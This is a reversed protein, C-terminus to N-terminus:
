STSSAPEAGWDPHARLAEYAALMKGRVEDTLAAVKELPADEGAPPPPAHPFVPDLVRVEISSIWKKTNVLLSGKELVAHAGFIVIPMVPVGFNSSFLFPGKKFAGIEPKEQRTGEPALAFMFGDAFLRSAHRYVELVEARKHRAIPLNSAARMAPGFMPIRFLEIKAGWRIRNRRCHALVAPIDFLSQHNFALIAGGQSPLKEFGRARIRIGYVWLIGRAWMMMAGTTRDSQKLLGFFIVILSFVGTWIPVFGIGFIARPYTLLQIM